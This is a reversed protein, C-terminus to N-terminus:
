VAALARRASKDRRIAVLCAAALQRALTIDAAALIAADLRGIRSAIEGITAESDVDRDPFFRDIFADTGPECNGARISDRRTVVVHDIESLDYARVRDILRGLQEARRAARTTAAAQSRARRVDSPVGQATMKRKLGAIAKKPDDDHSHYTTGSETHRAIVGRERDIALGRGQRAWVARYLEVGDPAAKISDADLTLLGDVVALGRDAVRSDWRLPITIVIKQSKIGRRWGHRKYDIWGEDTDSSISPEGVKIAWTSGQAATRFDMAKYHPRFSEKTKEIIKSERKAAAERRKRDAADKKAQAAALIRGPMGIRAADAISRDARRATRAAVIAKAAAIAKRSGVTTASMTSWWGAIMQPKFPRGEILRPIDLRADPIALLARANGAEALRRAQVPVTRQAVTSM